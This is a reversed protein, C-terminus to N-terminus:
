FNFDDEVNPRGGGQVPRNLIVSSPTPTPTVAGNGQSTTTTPSSNINSKVVKGPPTAVSKVRPKATKPPTTKKQYKQKLRNRRQYENREWSNYMPRGSEDLKVPKNFLPAPNGAWVASSFLLAIVFLSKLVMHRM